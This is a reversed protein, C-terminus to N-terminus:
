SPLSYYLGLLLTTTLIGVWFVVGAPHSPALAGIGESSGGDSGGGFGYGAEASTRPAAMTGYSPQAGVRVQAGAGLNLGAM